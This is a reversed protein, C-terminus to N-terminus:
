VGRASDAQMANNYELDLNRISKEKELMELKMMERELKMNPLRTVLGIVALVAALLSAYFGMSFLEKQGELKEKDKQLTQKEEELRKKDGELEMKQKEIKVREAELLEALRNTEEIDSQIEKLENQSEELQSKLLGVEVENGVIDEIKIASKAINGEARIVDKIAKNQINLIDSFIDAYASLPFLLIVLLGIRM